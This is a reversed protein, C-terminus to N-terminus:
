VHFWGKKIAEDLPTAAPFGIECCKQDMLGEVTKLEPFMQFNPNYSM